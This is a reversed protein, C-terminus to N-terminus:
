GRIQLIKLVQNKDLYILKELSIEDFDVGKALLIENKGDLEIIKIETESSFIVHNLDLYWLIKDIEKEKRYM